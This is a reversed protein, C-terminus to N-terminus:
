ANTRTLRRYLRELATDIRGDVIRERGEVVCGGSGIRADAVWRVERNETALDLAADESRGASHLLELDAPNVRITLAQELAFEEIARAVLSTVIDTSTSVEHAIIQQAVGVAIAAVNEELHALWRVEGARLDDLATESALIAGRLRASEAREAQERGDSVGRLYAADLESQRAVALAHTAAARESAALTAHVDELEEDFLSPRSEFSSSM